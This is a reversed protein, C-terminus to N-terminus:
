EKKNVMGCSNKESCYGVIECKPKYYHEMIYNWEEDVVVLKQYVETMFDRYEKLARKCLRLEAM